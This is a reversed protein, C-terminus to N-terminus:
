ATRVDRLAGQDQPPAKRRTKEEAASRASAPTAGRPLTRRRVSDERLARVDGGASPRWTRKLQAVPRRPRVQCHQLRAHAGAPDPVEQSRRTSRGDSLLSRHPQTRGPRPRSPSSAPWGYSPHQLRADRRAPSRRRSSLHTQLCHPQGGIRLPQARGTAHLVGPVDHPRQPALAAIRSNRYGDATTYVGSIRTSLAALLTRNEPLDSIKQDILGSVTQMHALFKPNRLLESQRYLSAGQEQGSDRMM